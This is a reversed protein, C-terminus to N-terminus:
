LNRNDSLLNADPKMQIMWKISKETQWKPKRKKDKKKWSVKKKTGPMIKMQDDQRKPKHQM